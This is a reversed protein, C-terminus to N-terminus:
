IVVLESEKVAIGLEIRSFNSLNADEINALYLFEIEGHELERGYLSVINLTEYNGKETIINEIFKTRVVEDVGSEWVRKYTEGSRISFELGGLYPPEDPSGDLWREWERMNSPQIKEFLTFLKAVSIINEIVEIRLTFIPQEDDINESVYINYIQIDDDLEVEGIATIYGKLARPIRMRFNEQNKKFRKELAELDVIGGLRLDLPLEKIPQRKKKRSLLYLTTGSILLFGGLLYGVNIPPSVIKKHSVPFYSQQPIGDIQSSSNRDRNEVKQRVTLSSLNWERISNASTSNTDGYLPPLLYSIALLSKWLRM